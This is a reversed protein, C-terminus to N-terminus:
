FYTRSRLIKTAIMTAIMTMVLPCNPMPEDDRSGEPPPSSSPVGAHGDVVYQTLGPPQTSQFSFGSLQKGPSVDSSASSWLLHLPM